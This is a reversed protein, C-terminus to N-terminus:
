MTTQDATAIGAVLEDGLKSGLRHMLELGFEQHKDVSLRLGLGFEANDAAVLLDCALTEGSGLM